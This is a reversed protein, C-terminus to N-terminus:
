YSSESERRGVGWARRGGGAAGVPGLILQLNISPNVKKTGETGPLKLRLTRLSRSPYASFFLRSEKGVKAVKAGKATFEEGKRQFDGAAASRDRLGRGAGAQTTRMRM